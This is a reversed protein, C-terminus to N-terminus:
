GSGAARPRRRRRGRRDRGGPLNSGPLAAVFAVTLGITAASPQAAGAPPVAIVASFQTAAVFSVGILIRVVCAWPRAVPSRTVIEPTCPLVAAFPVKVTVTGAEVVGGSDGAIVTNVSSPLAPLPAYM